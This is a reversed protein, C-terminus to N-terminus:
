DELEPHNNLVDELEAPAVQHGKYKILEKIRDVIFVFGDDDIYGIDGTRLYGDDTFAERTADPNDLYGVMLQPTRFLLEGHENRGLDQGTALCRVKMTVNPLLMGASGVRKSDLPSYTVAGSLETMGFGQHVTLNLRKELMTEIEAGLPAGGCAVRKVHSLDYDAVMPHQALFLAVPPAVLLKELKFSEAMRLLKDPEFRPMVVTAKGM